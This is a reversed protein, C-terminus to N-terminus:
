WVEEEEEEDHSSEENEIESEEEDQSSEANGIGGEEGDVDSHRSMKLAKEVGSIQSRHVLLIM